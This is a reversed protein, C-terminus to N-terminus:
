TDAATEIPVDGDLIINLCMSGFENVGTIVKAGNEIIPFIKVNTESSKKPYPNLGGVELQPFRSDCAASFKSLQCISINGIITSVRVIKM